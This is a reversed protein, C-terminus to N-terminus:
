ARRRAHRRQGVPALRQEQERRAREPRERRRGGGRRAGAGRGLHQALPEVQGILNRSAGFFGGVRAYQLTQAVKPHRM